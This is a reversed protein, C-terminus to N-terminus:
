AVGGVRIFLNLGGFNIPWCLSMSRSRWVKLLLVRTIAPCRWRMGRRKSGRGQLGATALRESDDQQRTAM